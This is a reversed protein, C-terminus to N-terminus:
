YYEFELEYINDSKITEDTKYEIQLHWPLKYTNDLSMIKIRGSEKDTVFFIRSSNEETNGVKEFHFRNEQSYGNSSWERKDHLKVDNNFLTANTVSDTIKIRQVNDLNPTLTRLFGKYQILHSGVASPIMKIKNPCLEKLIKLKMLIMQLLIILMIQM